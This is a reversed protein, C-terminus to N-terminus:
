TRKSSQQAAQEPSDKFAIFRKKMKKKYRMVWLLSEGEMLHLSATQILKGWIAEDNL